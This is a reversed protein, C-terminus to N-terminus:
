KWNTLYMELEVERESGRISWSVRSRALLTDPDAGGGTEVVNDGADRLVEELELSRTFMGAQEEGPVLTWDPPSGQLQPYYAAGVALTGLGDESWTTADRFRVAAELGERALGTAQLRRQSELGSQLFLRLGGLFGSLLVAIAAVAVLAEIVTVGSNFRRIRPM